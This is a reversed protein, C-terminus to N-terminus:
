RSRCPASNRNCEDHNTPLGGALTLEGSPQFPGSPQVDIQNRSPPRGSEAIEQRRISAVIVRAFARALEEVVDPPLPPSTTM